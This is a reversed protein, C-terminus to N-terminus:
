STGVRILYTRVWRGWEPLNQVEDLMLLIRGNYERAEENIVKLFVGFDTPRLVSLRVDEFNIYVISSRPWGRGMLDQAIWYM